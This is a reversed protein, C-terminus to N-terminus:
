AVRRRRGIGILGILGTGLLWISPPVPVPNAVIISNLIHGMDDMLEAEFAVQGNDNILPAVVSEVLFGNLTDGVMIVKDSIPDAGAFIGRGGDDLDAYFAVDHTNNISPDGFFNFLGDSDVITTLPGGNGTFISVGFDTVSAASFAVVGSNNIAPASFFSLGDSGDAIATVPGGSGTFVGNGGSDLSGRFAVTGADNIRADWPPFDSFVGSTDAITTIPGGIGTFIGSEGNDLSRHFAVTGANNISTGNFGSFPESLDAITTTPGGNGRLIATGVPDLWARFAVVGSDNISSNTLGSFTANSEYVTTIPGGNSIFLGDVGNLNGEILVSGANNFGHLVAIRATDDVITTFTYTGASASHCVGLCVL